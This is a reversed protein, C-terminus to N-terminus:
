FLTNELKRSDTVVRVEVPRHHYDYIRDCSGHQTLCSVRDGCSPSVSPAAAAILRWWRTTSHRYLTHLLVCWIGSVRQRRKPWRAVRPKAHSSLSSVLTCSNWGAVFCSTTKQRMRCRTWIAPSVKLWARWWYFVWAAAPFLQLLIECAVVDDNLRWHLKNWHVWSLAM